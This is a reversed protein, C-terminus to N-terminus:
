AEAIKIAAYLRISREFQIATELVEKREYKGFEGAFATLAGETHIKIEMNRPVAIEAVIGSDSHM